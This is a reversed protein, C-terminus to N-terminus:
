VQSKLLTVFVNKGGVLLAGLYYFYHLFPPFFDKKTVKKFRILCPNRIAFATFPAPISTIKLEWFEFYHQM